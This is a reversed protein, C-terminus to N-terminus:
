GDGTSGCGPGLAGFKTLISARWDGDEVAAPARRRRGRDERQRRTASKSVAAVEKRYQRRWRRGRRSKSRGGPSVNRRAAPARASRPGHGHRLSFGDGEGDGVLAPVDQGGTPFGVEVGDFGVGLSAFPLNVRRPHVVHDLLARGVQDDRLIM